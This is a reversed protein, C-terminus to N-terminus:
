LDERDASGSLGHLESRFENELPTRLNESQLGFVGRPSPESPILAASKAADTLYVMAGVISGRALVSVYRFRRPLSDSWLWGGELGVLVTAPRSQSPDPPEDGFYVLGVPSEGIPYELALYGTVSRGWDFTVWPGLQGDGAAGRDPRKWVRSGGDERFRVARTPEVDRLLDPITPRERVISPSPWRGVPPRGWVVPPEGGPLEEAPRGLGRDQQRFVRWSNDSVVTTSRGRARIELAVLLGGNGQSSRAEFVLRNRGRELYGGVEYADVLGQDSYRGGGIQIGNVIVVYEEDAQCLLRASDVRSDLSFDRVMYFAQPDSQNEEVTAWIWEAAGTTLSTRTVAWRVFREAGALGLLALVLVVLWFRPSRGPAQSESASLQKM